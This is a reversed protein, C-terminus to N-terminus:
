GKQKKKKCTPNLQQILLTIGLKLFNKQGVKAGHGVLGVWGNSARITTSNKTRGLVEGVKIEVEHTEKLLSLAQKM